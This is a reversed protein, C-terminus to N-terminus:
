VDLVVSGHPKCSCPLCTGVDPKIGTPHNYTVEGALLNTMCTGCDGYLCGSSIEIGNVEAFHWLSECASDWPVTKKERAFTVTATNGGLATAESMPTAAPDVERRGFSETRIRERSVGADTLGAIMAEMMPTPGCLFYEQDLSPLLSRLLPVDVFGARHYEVGLHEDGTPQSYSVHLKVNAFRDAVNRLHDAFAFDHRNRIALFFWVPRNPCHRVIANLMAIMPTMGIGGAIFVVPHDSSTDLIFAGGPLKADISDGVKINDHFFKSALGALERKITLRYHRADGHCDSLTYFRYLPGSQGPVILRVPLHQGPYYPELPQGDASKLYFSKASGSEREIRDVVLKRYTSM